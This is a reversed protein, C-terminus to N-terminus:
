TQIEREAELMCSYELDFSFDSMNLDYGAKEFADPVVFPEIMNALSKEVGIGREKFFAKIEGKQQRDLEVGKKPEIHYVRWPGRHRRIQVIANIQDTWEYFQSEERVAEPVLDALCNNYRKSAEEMMLGNALYRVHCSEPVKARAFPLRLYISRFAKAIGEGNRMCIELNKLLLAKDSFDTSALREYLRILHDLKEEDRIQKAFALHRWGQPLKILCRLVMATLRDENSMDLALEPAVRTLTYLSRYVDHQQAVPGLRGILKCFGIPLDGFVDSLLTKSKKTILAKRVDDAVETMAVRPAEPSSLVANWVQRRTVDTLLYVIQLHGPFIEAIKSALPGALKAVLAQYDQTVQATEALKLAAALNAHQGANTISAPLKAMSSTAITSTAPKAAVQLATESM